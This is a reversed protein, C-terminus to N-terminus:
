TLREVKMPLSRASSIATVRESFSAQFQRASGKGRYREGVSRFEEYHIGQIRVERFQCARHFAEAAHPSSRYSCEGPHRSPDDGGDAHEHRRAHSM